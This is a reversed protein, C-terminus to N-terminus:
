RFFPTRLISVKQIYWVGIKTTEHSVRSRSPQSVVQDTEISHNRIATLEAKAPGHGPPRIFGGIQYDQGHRSVRARCTQPFLSLQWSDARIHQSGPWNM